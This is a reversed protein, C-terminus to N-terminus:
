LFRDLNELTIIVFTSGGKKYNVTYFPLLFATLLLSLSTDFLFVLCAYIIFHVFLELSSLLWRSINSYCSIQYTVKVCLNHTSLQYFHCSDLSRMRMLQSLFQCSLQTSMSKHTKVVKLKKRAAIVSILIVLLGAIAPLGRQLTNLSPGFYLQSFRADLM